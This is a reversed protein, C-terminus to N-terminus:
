LFIIANHLFNIKKYIHVMYPESTLIPLRNPPIWNRLGDLTGPLPGPGRMLTWMSVVDYRFMMFCAPAM